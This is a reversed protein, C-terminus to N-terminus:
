STVKKWILSGLEIIKNFVWGVNAISNVVRERHFGNGFRMASGTVRLLTDHGRHSYGHLNIRLDDVAYLSIQRIRSTLFIRNTLYKVRDKWSDNRLLYSHFSKYTSTILFNNSIQNMNYAKMLDKSLWCNNTAFKKKKEKNWWLRIANMAYFLYFRTIQEGQRSM